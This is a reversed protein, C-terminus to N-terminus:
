VEIFPNFRGIENTIIGHVRHPKKKKLSKFLAVVKKDQFMLKLSEENGRIASLTDQSLPNAPTFGTNFVQKM